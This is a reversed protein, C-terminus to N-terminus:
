RFHVNSIDISVMLLGPHPRGEADRRFAHRVSPLRINALERALRDHTHDDGFV